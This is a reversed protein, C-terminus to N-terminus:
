PWLSVHSSHGRATVLDKEHRVTDFKRFITMARLDYLVSYALWSVYGVYMGYRETGYIYQEIIFGARDYWKKWELRKSLKFLVRWGAEEVDLENSEKEVEGGDM